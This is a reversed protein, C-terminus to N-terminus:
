AIELWNKRAHRVFALCYDALLYILLLLALSLFGLAENKTLFLNLVILGPTVIQSYTGIVFARLSVPHGEMGQDSIGYNWRKLIYNMALMFGLIGAASVWMYLKQPVYNDIAMGLALPLIWRLSKLYVPLYAKFLKGAQRQAAQVYGREINVLGADGGMDALAEHQAETFSKRQAMGDEVAQVLHDYLENRVEEYTGAGANDILSRINKQQDYTLPM